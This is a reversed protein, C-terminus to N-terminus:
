VCACCSLLTIFTPQNRFNDHSIHIVVLGGHTSKDGPSPSDAGGELVMCGQITLQKKCSRYLQLRVGCLATGVPPTKRPTHRAGVAVVMRAAASPGPTAGLLACAHMLVDKSLSRHLILTTARSHYLDWMLSSHTVRSTGPSRASRNLLQLILSVAAAVALLCNSLLSLMLNANTHWATTHQISNIHQSQVDSYYKHAGALLNIHKVM